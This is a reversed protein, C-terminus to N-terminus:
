YLVNFFTAVIIFSCMIANIIGLNVTSDYKIYECTKRLGCTKSILVVSCIFTLGVVIIPWGYVSHQRCTYVMQDSRRSVNTVVKFISTRNLTVPDNVNTNEYFIADCLFNYSDTFLYYQMQNLNDTVQYYKKVVIADKTQPEYFYDVGISIPLIVGVFAFM